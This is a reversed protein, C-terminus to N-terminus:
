YISPDIIDCEGTTGNIKKFMGTKFPLSKTFVICSYDHNKDVDRFM